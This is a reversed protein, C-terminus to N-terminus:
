RDRPQLIQRDPDDYGDGKSFQIVMSGQAAGLDVFVNASQKDNLVVGMSDTFNFSNQGANVAFVLNGDRTINASNGVDYAIDSITLEVNGADITQRPHVLDYISITANGSGVVAVAAQRATVKLIRAIAM